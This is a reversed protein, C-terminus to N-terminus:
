LLRPAVDKSIRGAHDDEGIRTPLPLTGKGEDIIAAFGRVTEAVASALSFTKGSLKTPVEGVAALAPKWIQAGPERGPPLTRFMIRDVAPRYPEMLDAALPFPDTEGRHKLGIGPHLGVSVIARTVIARLVAYGWDLAVSAPGGDRRSGTGDFLARWYAGAAAAERNDTDGPQVSGAYRAIPAFPKGLDKLHEAQRGIKNSVIDRWLRDVTRAPLGAQNRARDPGVASRGGAPSLWGIPCHRGDCIMLPIGQGALAALAGGTIAVHPVEIIVLDLDDIPLRRAVQEPREVILLNRDLRIAAGPSAIEVVRM